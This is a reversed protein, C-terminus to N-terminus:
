DSDSSDSESSDSSDSDSSDSINIGFASLAFPNNFKGFTTSIGLEKNFLESRETISIDHKNHDLTTSM